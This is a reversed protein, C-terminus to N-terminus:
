SSSGHRLPFCLRPEAPPVCFFNLYGPRLGVTEGAQLKGNKLTPPAPFSSVFTEEEHALGRGACGLLLGDNTQGCPVDFLTSLHRSGGVLEVAGWSM